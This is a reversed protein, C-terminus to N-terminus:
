NSDNSFQDRLQNNLTKATIKPPIAVLNYLAKASGHSIHTAGALSTYSGGQGLWPCYTTHPKCRKHKPWPITEITALPQSNKLEYLVSTKTTTLFVSAPLLNQLLSTLVDALRSIRSDLILEWLSGNIQSSPANIDTSLFTTGGRSSSTRAIYALPAMFFHVEILAVFYFKNHGFDLSNLKLSPHKSCAGLCNKRFPNHM